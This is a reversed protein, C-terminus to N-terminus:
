FYKRYLLDININDIPLNVAAVEARGADQEEYTPKEAQYLIGLPYKDTQRAKAMAANWDGRNYGEEKDLNYSNQLFYAYTQIKNFTVCPQFIDVLAFGKHSIAAQIIRNLNPVDGAYGRAVFTCGLSLALALPNLPEEVAGFPSSPTKSGKISTPTMQGKTLGYVMNDHVLLTMDINRRIAHVFHGAGIGYGGGDGSDVLVTLDRNALKVGSACAVARGHLSHLGYTNIWHTMKGSCGIDTILAVKHAEIQLGALAQKVAVQIGFDGCGPCWDPKAVTDFDKMQVTMKWFILESGDYFRFSARYVM